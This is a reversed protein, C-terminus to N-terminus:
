RAVRKRSSRARDRAKRCEICRRHARGGYIEVLAYEHGKPCHTRRAEHASFNNGRLTNVQSTVPELHDPNVCLPNRCLHDIQLGKPIPGVLLEWCYRHALMRKSGSWFQGYGEITSATWEWCLGVDVKAWFREEVTSAWKGM